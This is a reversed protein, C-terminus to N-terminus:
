DIREIKIIDQVQKLRDILKILDDLNFVYLGIEGEFLNSTKRLNISYMNVHHEDSIISIIEKLIGPRDKGSILIKTPLANNAKPKWIVPTTQKGVLGQRKIANPCTTKHIEIEGNTNVFAVAPDGPIPNCCSAVIYEFSDDVLLPTKYNIEIKQKNKEPSIIVNNDNNEDCISQCLNEEKLYRIIHRKARNTKVYKIWEIEPKANSSTLVEVVDTSQLVHTPPKVYANNVKGGICHMGLDTHVKFAFDIITAGVPLEIKEGKPTFVFISKSNIYSSLRDIIESIPESQEINRLVKNAINDIGINFTREKEVITGYRAIQDDTKSLIQIEFVQGKYIVSFLLARFGNARPKIIWDKLSKEKSITINTLALYINYAINRIQKPDTDIIIRISEINHIGELEINKERMKRWVTYVSKRVETVEYVLQMEEMNQRILLELDRKHDARQSLYQEIRQKTQQYDLPYIYKFSYDEIENKIEYLGAIFALPAYILLNESSKVNRMGTPMDEMTRMNHLRDAIKVLLVRFDKPISFILKKLSEIQQNEKGSVKTIKTVGHVITAIQEGFFIKIDEITYQESDEVVDHLLAAVVSIFDLHMEQAIIIAVEVPHIIYPEKKGGKRRQERHADFAVDYAKKILEKQGENYSDWPLKVTLYKYLNNRYKETVKGKFEPRTM